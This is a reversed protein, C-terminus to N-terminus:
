SSNEACGAQILIKKSPIAAFFYGKGGSWDRAV